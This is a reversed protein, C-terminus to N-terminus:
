FNYMESNKQRSGQWKLARRLIFLCEFFQQFTQGEIIFLVLPKFGKKVQRLPGKAENMGLETLRLDHQYVALVSCVRESVCFFCAQLCKKNKWSLQISWILSSAVYMFHHLCKLTKHYARFFQQKIDFEKCSDHLWLIVM